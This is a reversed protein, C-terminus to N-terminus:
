YTIYGGTVSYGISKNKGNNLYIVYGGELFIELTAPMFQKNKM